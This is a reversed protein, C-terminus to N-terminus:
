SIFFERFICKCGWFFMQLLSRSMQRASIAPAILMGSMLIVGVTRMGILIAIALFCFLLTDFLSLSFGLTKAFNRDFTAVQVTRYTFYLILLVMAVLFAYIQVHEDRLTAAQGYLFLQVQKVLGGQFRQISSTLLVGIGFFCALVFCLAADSKVKLRSELFEISFLALLIFIFAISFILMDHKEFFFAASILAGLVVGPYAAHSLTEGILVRRRVFILVGILSSALCMLMSGITSSRLIPDIFYSIM